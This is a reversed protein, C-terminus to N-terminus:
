IQQTMYFIIFSKKNQRQRAAVLVGAKNFRHTLIFDKTARSYILLFMILVFKNAKKPPTLRTAEALGACLGGYSAKYM